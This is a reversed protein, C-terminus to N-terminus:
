LISPPFCHRVFCELVAAMADHDLREELTVPPAPSKADTFLGQDLELM